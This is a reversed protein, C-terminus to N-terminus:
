RILMSNCHFNHDKDVERSTYHGSLGTARWEERKELTVALADGRVYGHQAWWTYMIIIKGQHWFDSLIDSALLAM